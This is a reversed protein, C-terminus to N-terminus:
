TFGRLVNQPTGEESPLPSAGEMPYRVRTGREYSVAWGRHGDYPGPCLGVTPDLPSATEESRSVGTYTAGPPTRCVRKRKKRRKGRKRESARVRERVREKEEYKAKVTETEREREKERERDKERKREEERARAKWPTGYRPVESM